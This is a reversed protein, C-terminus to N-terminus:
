RGQIEPWLAPLDAVSELLHTHPARSLTERDHAGTLVGVNWRVGANSGARLDLDTDGVNLVEHVSHVNTREM